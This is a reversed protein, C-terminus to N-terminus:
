ENEKMGVVSENQDKSNNLQAMGKKSNVKFFM